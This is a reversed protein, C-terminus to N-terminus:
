SCIVYIEFFLVYAHRHEWTTIRLWLYVTNSSSHTPSQEILNFLVLNLLALAMCMCIQHLSNRLSWHTLIRLLWTRPMKFGNCIAKALWQFVNFLSMRQEWKDSTKLMNARTISSKNSAIKFEEKPQCCPIYCAMQPTSFGTNNFFFFCNPFCFCFHRMKNTGTLGM